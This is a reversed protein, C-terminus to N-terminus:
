NSAHDSLSPPWARYFSDLAFFVDPWRQRLQDPTQFYAESSVAFFEAPHSAGYCDLIDERGDECARKLRRHAATMTALWRQAEENTELVPVGDAERGNRMDLHHAFEHIVVNRPLHPHYALQQVDSWSLIVPGRYWAEGSRMTEEHLVLGSGIPRQDPAIYPTPYVLISLVEDFYEDPFCAALRGIQLAIAVCHEETLQFGHCGEWHKERYVIYACRLIRLRQAVPFGLLDPRYKEIWPRWHDPVPEKGWKRRRWRRLWGIM